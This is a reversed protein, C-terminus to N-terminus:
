FDEVPEIPVSCLGSKQLVLIRKCKYAYIKQQNIIQEYIPKLTQETELNKFEITAMKVCRKILGIQAFRYKFM